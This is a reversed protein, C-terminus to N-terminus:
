STARACRSGSAADIRTYYGFQYGLYTTTNDRPDVQV